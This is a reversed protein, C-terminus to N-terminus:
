AEVTAWKDRAQRAAVRLFEQQGHSIEFKSLIVMSSELGAFTRRNSAAEGAATGLSPAM